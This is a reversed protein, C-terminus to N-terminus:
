GSRPLGATPLGYFCAAMLSMARRADGVQVYSAGAVACPRDAVVAVAGGKVAADLFQCGDSKVGHLGFFLGGPRVSRSDYYLGTIEVESDGTVRAGELCSLLQALKM